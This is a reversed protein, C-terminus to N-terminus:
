VTFGLRLFISLYYNLFNFFVLPPFYEPHGAGSVEKTWSELTLGLSWSPDLQRRFHQPSQCEGQFFLVRLLDSVDITNESPILIM